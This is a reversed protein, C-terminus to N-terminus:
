DGNVLRRWEETCTQFTGAECIRSVLGYVVPVESVPSVSVGHVRQGNKNRRRCRHAKLDDARGATRQGNVCM